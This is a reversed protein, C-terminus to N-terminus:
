NILFLILIIILQIMWLNYLYNVRNIAPKTADRKRTISQVELVDISLIYIHIICEVRVCFGGAYKHPANFREIEKLIFLLKLSNEM